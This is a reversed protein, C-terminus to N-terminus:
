GKLKEGNSWKVLMDKIEQWETQLVEFQEALKGPETIRGLECLEAGFEAYKKRLFKLRIMMKALETKTTNKM